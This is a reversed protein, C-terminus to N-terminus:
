GDVCNFQAIRDFRKPNQRDLLGVTRFDDSLNLKRCVFVIGRIPAVAILEKGTIVVAWEKMEGRAGIYAEVQGAMMLSNIRTAPLKVVLLGKSVKAFAGVISMVSFSDVGGSTFGIRKIVGFALYNEQRVTARPM